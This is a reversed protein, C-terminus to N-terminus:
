QIQTQLKSLIEAEMQQYIIAQQHQAQERM